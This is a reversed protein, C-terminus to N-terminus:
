EGLIAQRLSLIKNQSTAIQTRVQRRARRTLSINQPINRSGYRANRFQWNIDKKPITLTGLQRQLRRINEQEALIDSEYSM